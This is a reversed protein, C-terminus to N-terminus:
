TEHNVFIYGKNPNKDGYEPQAGAKSAVWSGLATARSLAKAPNFNPNLLSDIMAAFFSDGAGVTDKVQIPYTAGEFFEGRYFMVASKEARTVCVMEINLINALKLIKDNLSTNPASLQILLDLEDENVKVFDALRAFELVIETTNHPLRINADFCKLGSYNKLFRKIQTRNYEFRLGVSPYVFADTDFFYKLQKDILLIEDWAAPTKIAYKANGNEDIEVDVRGTELHEIERIASTDCNWLENIQELARKGLEDNGVSSALIPMTNLKSLHYAVNLTAGGLFNGYPFCDWLVEAAILCKKKM